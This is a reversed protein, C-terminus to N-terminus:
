RLEILIGRLKMSPAGWVIIVKKFDVQLFSVSMQTWPFFVCLHVLFGGHCIM